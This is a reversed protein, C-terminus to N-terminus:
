QLLASPPDKQAEEPISRVCRISGGPQDLWPEYTYSEIIFTTSGGVPSTAPPAGGLWVTPWAGSDHANIRPDVVDGAGRNRIPGTLVSPLGVEGWGDVPLFSGYTVTIPGPDVRNPGMYIQLPGNRYLDTTKLILPDPTEPFWNYSATGNGAKTKVSEDLVALEIPMPLRYGNAKFNCQGASISTFGPNRLPTTRSADTYYVPDFGEKESRANCWIIAEIWGQRTGDEISRGPELTNTDLPTLTYGNGIAWNTVENWRKHTIDMRDVFFPSVTYLSFFATSPNFETSSPAYMWKSSFRVYEMGAPAEHTVAKRGATIKFQSQALILAPNGEPLWTNWLGEISDAAYVTIKPSSAEVFSLAWGPIKWRIKKSTGPVVGEGVDGSVLMYPNELNKTLLIANINFGTGNDYPNLNPSFSPQFWVYLESTDPDAVDYTIDLIGPENFQAIVNTVVPAAAQLQSGLGALTLLVTLQPLLKRKM